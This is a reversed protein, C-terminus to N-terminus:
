LLAKGRASCPQREGSRGSARLDKVSDDRVRRPRSRKQKLPELRKVSEVDVCLVRRTSTSERVVEADGASSHEEHGGSVLWADDCRRRAERGLLRCVVCRQIQGDKSRCPRVTRVGVTRVRARCSQGGAARWTAPPWGGWSCGIPMSQCQRRGFLARRPTLTGTKSRM